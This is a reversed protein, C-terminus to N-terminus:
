KNSLPDNLALILGGCGLFKKFDIDEPFGGKEEIPLDEEKAKAKKKRNTQKKKKDM